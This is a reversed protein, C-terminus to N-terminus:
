EHNGGEWFGAADMADLFGTTHIPDSQPDTPKKLEQGFLSESEAELLAINQGLYRDRILLYRADAGDKGLFLSERLDHMQSNPLKYRNDEDKANIVGVRETLKGWHHREIWEIKDSDQYWDSPSVIYPRSYLHTKPNPLELKDRITKLDVGSSDYLIHFDIASCPMTKGNADKVIDKVTKASKILQEALSYAVSFPFNQKMVTIGACASLRDDSLHQKARDIIINKAKAKVEADAIPMDVAEQTYKEFKTLFAHTFQLAYEGDCVVTLDDGGLILPVLPIIIKGQNKGKNIPERGKVFVDDIADLFAQETCIDIATSFQRYKNVYDRNSDTDKGFDLFIQGLGNGDAHVVSLWGVNDPFNDEFECINGLFELQSDRTKLLEQIRAFGAARAARKRDSVRSRLAIDTGMAEVTSAPLGSTSCEGVVPLRQFRNAAGPRQGRVGEIRQHVQRNMKALEGNINWNLPDSIVGCIDLGPAHILAKTTVARIIQKAAALDETLLLAKGSTAILIEIEVGSGEISRNFHPDLLATRLDQSPSDAPINQQWTNIEAVAERVWQTGARYTLESAGINERLKNTSFIFNQNGATELLVLYM